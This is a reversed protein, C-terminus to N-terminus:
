QPRLVAARHAAYCPQQHVQVQHLCQHGGAQPQRPYLGQGEEQARRHALGASGTQQHLEDQDAEQYLGDARPLPLIFPHGQSLARRLYRRFQRRM